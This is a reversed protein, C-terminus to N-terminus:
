RILTVSGITKKVKDKGVTTGTWVSGDVFTAEIKWVYVGQQCLKGQYYGDWGEAPELEPTLAESEWLLEGWKDFVQAHYTRLGIGAPKWVQVLSSPGSYEPAFANPVYLSKKVVDLSQLATDSCGFSNTAILMVEFQNVDPFMHSPNVDTSTQGM